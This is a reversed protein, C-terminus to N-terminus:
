CMVDTRAGRGLWTIGSGSVASCTGWPLGWSRRRRKVEGGGGGGGGLRVQQCFLELLRVAVLRQAPHSLLLSYKGACAATIGSVRCTYLARSCCYQNPHKIFWLLISYVCLHQQMDSTQM